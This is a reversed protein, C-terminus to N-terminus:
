ENDWQHREAFPQELSNDGRDARGSQEGMATFALGDSMKFTQTIGLRVFGLGMEEVFKSASQYISKFSATRSGEQDSYGAGRRTLEAWEAAKATVFDDCALKATSNTYIAVPRYGANSLCINLVGSARDIFKEVEVLKPRTTTNLTSQGDLLHRTVAVVESTSSYSDSRIAM